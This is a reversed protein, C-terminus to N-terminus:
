RKPLTDLLRKVAIRSEVQLPAHAIKEIAKVALQAAFERKAKEKDTVVNLTMWTREDKWLTEGTKAEVLRGAITVKRQWYFGINIDNFYVLTNYFLTDATLWKGLDEPKAANLQGGDTFGNDKMIRDVEVPDSVNFGRARLGDVILQRVYAPGDLDTTENAIPLVAVRGASQYRQSVYAQNAACGTFFISGALFFAQVTQKM